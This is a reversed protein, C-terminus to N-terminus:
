TTPSLADTAKETTRQQLLKLAEIGGAIQDLRIENETLAKKLKVRLEREDQMRASLEALLTDLETM